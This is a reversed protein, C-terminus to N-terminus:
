QEGSPFNSIVHIIDRSLTSFSSSYISSLLVQGWINKLSFIFIYIYINNLARSIYYYVYKNVHDYGKSALLFFVYKLDSITTKWM